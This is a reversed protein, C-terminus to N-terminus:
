LKGCDHNESYDSNNDQNIQDNKKLLNEESALPFSFDARTLHGIIDGIGMAPYTMNFINYKLNPRNLTGPFNTGFPAFQM